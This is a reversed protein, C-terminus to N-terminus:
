RVATITVQREANNMTDIITYSNDGTFGPVPRYAVRARNGVPGMLIEGHTPAQSVRFTPIYQFSGQTAALNIWCWGGESSVRITTAGAIGGAVALTSRGSCVRARQLEAVSPLDAASAFSLGGVAWLTAAGIMPWKPM